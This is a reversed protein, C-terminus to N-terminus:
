EIFEQNENIKKDKKDKLINISFEVEPYIIKEGYFGFGEGSGSLNHNNFYYNGESKKLDVLNKLVYEYSHGAYNIVVKTKLPLLEGGDLDIKVSGMLNDGSIYENDVAVSIIKGTFLFNGFFVLSLILLIPIVLLLIKFINNRKAPAENKGKGVYESIVKGNEKRNHYEYPGYMKDGKKIYRKYVMGIFITTYSNLAKM